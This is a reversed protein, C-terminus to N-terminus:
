SRTNECLSLNHSLVTFLYVFMDDDDDIKEKHNHRIPICGM